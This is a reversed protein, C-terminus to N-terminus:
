RYRVRVVHSTPYYHRRLWPLGHGQLAYLFSGWQCMGRYHSSRRYKRNKCERHCDIHRKRDVVDYTGRGGCSASYEAYVLRGRHDVLVQRRTARVARTVAPVRRGTYAQDWITDTLHFGTRDELHKDALIAYLAYTRAAIAQLQWTAQLAARLRPHSPRERSFIGEEALVVGAVYDELDLRQVCRGRFAAACRGPRYALRTRLVRVLGPAHHRDFSRPRFSLRRTPFPGRLEGPGPERRRLWVVLSVVALALIAGAAIWQFLLQQRRTRAM